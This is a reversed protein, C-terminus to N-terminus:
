NIAKNASKYVSKKENIILSKSTGIIKSLVKSISIIQNLLEGPNPYSEIDGCLKLWYQTEEAEKAAIKLKHIFDARSEASQSERINAGVSTASRFLQNALNFKRKAELIEVYKIANVAFAYSLDVILNQKEEGM